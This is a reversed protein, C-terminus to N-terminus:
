FPCRADVDTKGNGGYVVGLAFVFIIYFICLAYRAFIYKRKYQLFICFFGIVYAACDIFLAIYVENVILYIVLPSIIVLQLFIMGNLLIVKRAENEELEDHLGVESIYNWFAIISKMSCFVFFLTSLM